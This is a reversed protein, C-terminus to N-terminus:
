AFLTELADPVELQYDIKHSHHRFAPDPRALVQSCALNAAGLAVAVLLPAVMFGTLLTISYTAEETSLAAETARCHAARVGTATM